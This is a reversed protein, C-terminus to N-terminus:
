ASILGSLKKLFPRGGSGAVIATNTMSSKKEALAPLHNALQHKRASQRGLGVDIARFDGPVDPRFATFPHKVFPRSIENECRPRAPTPPESGSTLQQFKQHPSAIPSPM